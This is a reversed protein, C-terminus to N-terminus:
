KMRRVRFSGKEDVIKMKYGMFTREITVPFSCDRYHLRRDDVHKWVQGNDLNFSYKGYYDQRCSIVVANLPPESNTEEQAIRKGSIPVDAEPVVAKPIPPDSDKPSPSAATVAAPSKTTVGLSTAPSSAPAAVARAPTRSSPTKNVKKEAALLQRSLIEFCEARVSQDDIRACKKLQEIADEEHASPESFSTLILGGGIVFVGISQLANKNHRKM